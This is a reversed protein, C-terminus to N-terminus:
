WLYDLVLTNSEGWNCVFKKRIFYKVKCHIFYVLNIILTNVTSQSFYEILKKKKAHFYCIDKFYKFLHLQGKVRESWKRERNSCFVCCFSNTSSFAHVMWERSNKKGPRHIWAGCCTRMVQKLPSRTIWHASNISLCVIYPLCYGLM